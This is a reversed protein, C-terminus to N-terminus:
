FPIDDVMASLDIPANEDTPAAEALNLTQLRETPEDYTEQMSGARPAVGYKRELDMRSPLIFHREYTFPYIVDNAPRIVKGQESLVEPTGFEMVLDDETLTAVYTPKGTASEKDGNGRTMDLVLGRFSKHVNLLAEFAAFDNRKVALTRKTYEYKVIKGDVEKSWPTLDLVTLLAVDAPNSVGQMSCLPCTDHEGICRETTWKGDPGQLSHERMAFSFKEDLVIIRKTENKAVRFRSPVYVKKPPYKSNNQSNQNGGGTMRAFISKSANDVNDAVASVKPGGGRISSLKSM